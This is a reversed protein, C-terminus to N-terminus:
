SEGDILREIREHESEQRALVDQHVRALIKEPESSAPYYAGLRGELYARELATGRMGSGFRMGALKRQDGPYLAELRAIEDCLDGPAARGANTAAATKFADLLRRDLLELLEGTAKALGVKAARSYILGVYYSGVALGNRGEGSISGILEPRDLELVLEVLQDFQKLDIPSLEPALMEGDGTLFWRLNVNPFSRAVGVVMALNPNTREREVDSVYGGSVGLLDAFEAQSYGAELRVLHFRGGLSSADPARQARRKRKM